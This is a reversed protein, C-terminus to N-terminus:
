SKNSDSTFNTFDDPSLGLIAMMTESDMDDTNIVEGTEFNWLEISYKQTLVYRLPSKSDNNDFMHRLRTKEGTEFNWLEVSGKQTVIFRMLSESDVNNFIKKVSNKRITIM